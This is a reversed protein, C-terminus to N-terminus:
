TSDCGSEEPPLAITSSTAEGLRSSRNAVTGEESIQLNMIMIPSSGSKNLMDWLLWLQRQSLDDVVQLRRREAPPSTVSPGLVGFFLPAVEDLKM